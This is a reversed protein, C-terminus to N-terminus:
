SAVGAAPCTPCTNFGGEAAAPDMELGCHACVPPPPVDTVLPDVFSTGSKNTPICVPEPQSPGEEIHRYTSVLLEPVDKLSLANPEIGEALSYHWYTRDGVQEEDCVLVQLMYLAQLERDVTNRPKEIRKRVEATTSDPHAALDDLISLRLPPVTDRACRIALQVAAVREMGIALGGRVIQALQKAFRTPMEPAHADTVNGQYDREVATRALTVLDAASLLLETEADDLDVAETNIGALVGAVAESLERRMTVESGTNGIARRGAARRGEHSDMRVLVFRDGMAAIVAHAADWATTVAGITVLRGAWELTRGGDTGVNRSWRGDYIERLAALVEARMNRDMSLISTVDKIVLVGRDGIKRLLGGHADKSRERKSTASLLAGPSSITSTITTLPVLNLAGVTETKANGSGSILLLWVPDGDLQEVAAAALVARLADLDYEAGLWRTFTAEAEALTVIPHNQTRADPLPHTQRVGEGQNIGETTSLGDSHQPQYAVLADVGFGAALHDSADKGVKAQRFELDAAVGALKDAVDAAWQEGARDRDVVAVVIAGQLPSIDVKTFNSAGMPATTAVVGALAALQDADKEGEVLYVIEGDAAAQLVRAARYLTPTGRTNGSQRFQKTPTRRVIRGDDYRWSLDRKEDFADAPELHLASLVDSYHCGAFCHLLVMGDGARLSLSPNHDDHAPCQATAREGRRQVRKGDLELAHLVREYATVM